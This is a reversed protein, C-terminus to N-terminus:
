LKDKVNVWTIVKQFVFICIKFSLYMLVLVSGVCYELNGRSSYTKNIYVTFALYQWSKMLECHQPSIVIFLTLHSSIDKLLYKGRYNMKDNLSLVLQSTLWCLKKRWEAGVKCENYALELILLYPHASFFLGRKYIGATNLKNIIVFFTPCCYKKCSSSM